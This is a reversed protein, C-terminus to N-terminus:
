LQAIEALSAAALQGCGKSTGLGQSRHAHSGHNENGHFPFKRSTFTLHPNKLANKSHIVGVVNALYFM